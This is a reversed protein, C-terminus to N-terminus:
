SINVLTCMLTGSLVRCIMKSVLIEQCGVTNARVILSIMVILLCEIVVRLSHMCSVTLHSSALSIGYLVFTYIYILPVLRNNSGRRANLGCMLHLSFQVYVDANDQKVRMLRFSDLAWVDSQLGGHTKQALCLRTNNHRAHPGVPVM